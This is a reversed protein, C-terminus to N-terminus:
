ALGLDKMVVETREIDWRIEREFPIETLFADSWKRTVLEQQWAASDKLQSVFNILADRQANTIGPPAFVGRWNAMVLNMGLETMTPVNVGPIRTRGSTALPIMRGAKIQEEFESYGSIGAVVQGGIIAANAPGGGAFAVYAAERPNRGLAKVMLGLILHDTGGASGGAVSVAKPNSKLAAVLENWTKIKGSAPVVVVGAEETLRAIPTVNRMTVPSKNAIAAGVMVSGGVMLSNGQGKRQNVFRPLGVMGGAGGVNEFQMAGVLGAAKAAREIARATGDWGGGPAAPVFMNITEFLAKPQAWAPLAAAAAGAVGFTLFERKSLSM